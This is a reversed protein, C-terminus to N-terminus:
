YDVLFLRLFSSAKPKGPVLNSKHTEIEDMMMKKLLTAHEIKVDFGTLKPFLRFLSPFGLEM